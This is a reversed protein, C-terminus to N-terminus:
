VNHGKLEKNVVERKSYDQWEEPANIKLLIEYVATIKNLTTGRVALGEQMQVRAAGKARKDRKGSKIAKLAAADRKEAKKKLKERKERLADDEKGAVAQYQTTHNGETAALIDDWSSGESIGLWQCM